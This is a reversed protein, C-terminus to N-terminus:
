RKRSRAQQLPPTEERCVPCVCPIPTVALNLQTEIAPWDKPRWLHARSPAYANDPPTLSSRYSLLWEWQEPTPRSRPNDSKLEAVIVGHNAHRLALDPHGWATVRSHSQRAIADAMEDLGLDKAQHELAYSKPGRGTDIIHFAVWGAARATAILSDQFLRETAPQSM